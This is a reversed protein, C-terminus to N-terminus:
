ANGLIRTYADEVERVIGLLAVIVIQHTLNPLRERNLGVWELPPTAEGMDRLQPTEIIPPELARYTYKSQPLKVDATVTIKEQRSDSGLAGSISTSTDQLGGGRIKVASERLPKGLRSALTRTHTEWMSRIVSIRSYNWGIDIKGQFTSRFIYDIMDSDQAQWTQMAALVKPVRLIVGGRAALANKVVDEVTVEGLTGPTTAHPANSLAVSLQGLTLGLGSHIREDDDLTAAFRAQIDSAEAKLIQHDKLTTPFAGVVVSRLTVVVDTHLTLDSKEPIEVGTKKVLAQLRRVDRNQYVSSKRRLFSGIEKLSQEYTAQREQILREFAQYLSVGAAAASATIFANVKDGDLIAVLRDGHAKEADRVNYMVFEFNVVDIAASAQYDFAAMLKLSNFGISGQVLPGHEHDSDSAPWAISTRAKVKELGVFGSMRGTSTIEVKDIGICLNQQSSTSKNSSAWTDKISLSTRGIAQGFDLEAALEAIALTAHWSFATSAALDKYRAILYEQPQDAVAPAAEPMIEPPLWIERFLLADGIQRANVQARSPNAKIIASIGSTGKLHKSNMLSLIISEMEFGLTPDRSYVHRLSVSLGTLAASIAFFNGQEGSEVTNVTIYLDELKASAAVKAIPQCSLVLEQKCLRVGMNLRTRGLLARPDATVITDDTGEDTRKRQAPIAPSVERPDQQDRVLHKVSQSIQIILPVVSPQLTNSSADIRLEVNLDAEKTRPDDYQVRLSIGPSRLIATSEANENVFQGYRGQQTSHNLNLAAIAPRTFEEKKQGQIRVVAGAFDATVLLFTLEREGFLKGPQISSSAAGTDPLGEWTATIGRLDQSSKTISRKIDDIPLMFLPELQVDLAQGAAQFTFKRDTTTRQYEVNFIIEPLLASNRARESRLSKANVLAFELNEISLKAEAKSKALLNVAKLSLVLNEKDHSASRPVSDRVLYSIRVAQLDFAFTTTLGDNTQDEIIKAEIQENPTIAVITTNKTDRSALRKFYRKNGALDLHKLRTQLYRFIEAATPVTEAFIEIDPGFVSLTLARRASNVTNQDLTCTFLLGLTIIGCNRMASHHASQLNLNIRELVLRIEPVVLPVSPDESRNATRLYFSQVEFLVKANALNEHPTIVDVTVAVGGFTMNIDFIFPRSPQEIHVTPAPPFIELIRTKMTTIDATAAAIASQVRVSMATSVLGYLAHGDLVLREVCLMASATAIQETQLLRVSGNVPPVEFESVTTGANDNRNVLRHVQPKLDFDIEYTSLTSADPVISLRAIRGNISYELDKLVTLKFDYHDLFLAVHLQLPPTGSGSTQATHAIVEQRMNEAHSDILRKFYVAENSIVADVLEVLAVLEEELTISMKMSDGVLKLNRLIGADSLAQEFGIVLSPNTVGSRWILAQHTWMGISATKASVVANVTVEDSGQTWGFGTVSAKIGNLEVINILHPTDVTMTVHDSTFVIHMEELMASASATAESPRIDVDQQGPASKEFLLIVKDVLPCLHWNLNLAIDASDIQITTEKTSKYIEFLQLGSPALPAPTVAVAVALDQISFENQRKGPDILLALRGSRVSLSLPISSRDHLGVVRTTTGYVIRMVVTDAAKATDWDRWNDLTALATLTSNEPLSFYDRLCCAELEEIARADLSQLVYRLKSVIKWSESNRIHNPNSRIIYSPKTLFAPDQVQEIQAVLMYILYQLRREKKMNTSKFDVRMDDVLMATRHILAALYQVQTSSMTVEVNRVSVNVSTRQGHVLWVLVDEIRLQFAADDQTHQKAGEQASFLFSRMTAHVMDADDDDQRSPVSKLRTAVAIDKAIINYKDSTFTITNADHQDVENVLRLHIIPLVVKLDLITNKGEKKSHMALVESAASLHLDDLIDLPNRPQMFDLLDHVINLAKPTCYAVMGKDLAIILSTHTVDENRTNRFPTPPGRKQANSKTLDPLDPVETLNPELSLLPFQPYIDASDGADDSAALRRAGRHDSRSDRRTQAENIGESNPESSMQVQSDNRDVRHKMVEAPLSRQYQESNHAPIDTPEYLPSPLNPLPLSLVASDIQNQSDNVNARGHLLFAIRATPEDHLRLYDEQLLKQERFHLDRGLMSLSLATRLYAYTATPSLSGSREQSAEDISTCALVIQPVNMAMRQSFIGNTLDNFNGGLGRVDVLVAGDGVRSRIRIMPCSFRVYTADHLKESHPVPIANEADDITLALDKGAAVLKQLFTSSCEGVINGIDIDFNSVYAPEKPPLGFLRHGFVKVGDILLETQASPTDKHASQSIRATHGLHIPSSDVMMELYYATVRLDINATDIKLWIHEAADYLGAPLLICLNSARIDLIVDLNNGPNPSSDAGVEGLRVLEQYEQLTRFHVNDGFYNEKVQILHRAVFGFMSITFSDGIVTMTLTETLGPRTEMCANYIGNVTVKDLTTVHKNMLLTSLTIKSPLCLEFGLHTGTVDFTIDRSQPLYRDLPIVMDADLTAGHLIVFNNDDLDESNEIINADNTNLFLKFNSFHVKLLYRFPVFTFFDPPPGTSWDNILDVLLFTHDRLLFLELDAVDIKFLWERLGNWSLGYSLDCDLNVRKSRWLLAHNLSSSIEIGSVDVGLKNGFGKRGAVMDMDYMIHSGSKITVDFWAYPRVDRGAMAPQRKKTKSSVKRKRSKEKGAEGPRPGGVGSARGAWKSDKSAERFPIRLMTDEQIALTLAFRTPIRTMSPTLPPAPVADSFPAPFFIQQLMIRHRDAWPGYNVHGGKVVISMGYDPPTSGNINSTTAAPVHHKKHNVPVTGPIDWYFRLSLARIDAIVSSKGYEVSDWEGHKDQHDDELYRHLGHWQQKGLLPTDAPGTHGRGHMAVSEVSGGFKHARESFATFWKNFSKQKRHRTTGKSAANVKNLGTSLAVDEDHLAAAEDLQAMKYDMNPKMQIYPKSCDFDMLIKFVDLNGASSADFLGSASDFRASIISKTNDNGLVAAGKSVEVRIPLLRLFAPIAPSNIAHSDSGTQMQHKAKRRLPVQRLDSLEIDDEGVHTTPRRKSDRGHEASSSHSSQSEIHEEFGSKEAVHPTDQEQHNQQTRESKDQMTALVADYLPSRNYIFAEVGTIKVAIRCPLQDEQSVHGYQQHSAETSTDTIGDQEEFIKCDKVKRIWYRWTINGGHIFFTENDGYYRVGKFFIRGALPSFKLAEIDIYVRFTHWTYLRILYSLVTAVLRHWYFLFFLLLISNVIWEILYVWNFAGTARLPTAVLGGPGAM